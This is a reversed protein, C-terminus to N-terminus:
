PAGRGGLDQQLRQRFRARSSASPPAAQSPAKVRGGDLMRRLTSSLTEADNDFDGHHRADSQPAAPAKFWRRTKGDFFDQPFSKKNAVDRALGLLPEGKANTLPIHVRKEFAASVLYLLSKNYIHACHDDRETADDLTYLDFAEIAGKAVLPEYVERFLEITCAPAWLSVSKIPVGLSALHQAVFAHLIAGASHGALHVEDIEKAKLADRLHEAVLRAAGRKLETCLRANEKMEDWLAKGGLLRALPELTDDIRDLMFDKAADLSIGEDRRRGFAESLINRITSLADSRWILSIPYVQNALAQGLRNAVYQIAASEAHLGGHAYLLVRKTDWDAVRKPLTTRVIEKLGAETLGYPGKDRLVGDNGATVIHPRLDAYVYSAYSSTAGSMMLPADTPRSFSIPAGMRAVWVDSGNTLWDDYSLRALGGSGWDPGWSNQIWLGERDYGVIAFAHGGVVGDRYVINEDGEKVDMWGQHVRATAYLVGVESIASHLAVLDKHNVRFYAGLPRRFSDSARDGDIDAGLDSNRWIAEACIGHKHWGKMAGRASSGSYDEGEWEDYRKAMVYLMRASVGDGQDRSGLETLLYNAVTALGFGTCAGESGQDLVPVGMGLYRQLDSERRVTVLTPIYMQDRFDITDPLADFTRVTKPM